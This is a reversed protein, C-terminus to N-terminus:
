LWEAVLILNMCDAPNIEQLYTDTENIRWGAPNFTKGPKSATPLKFMEDYCYYTTSSINVINTSYSHGDYGRNVLNDLSAGEGLVLSISYQNAVFKAYIDFQYTFLRDLSGDIINIKNNKHVTPFVKNAYWGEFTYGDIKPSSLTVDSKITKPYSSTLLPHDKLWDKDVGNVKYNIRVGNAMQVMEAVLLYGVFSVIPIAWLSRIRKKIKKNVQLDTKYNDNM